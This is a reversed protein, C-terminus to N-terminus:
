HFSVTLIYARLNSVHKSMNIVVWAEPLESLDHYHQEFQHCALINYNTGLFGQRYPQPQGMKRNKGRIEQWSWLGSVDRM